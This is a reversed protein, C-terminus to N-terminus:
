ANTAVAASANSLPAISSSSPPAGAGTPPAVRLSVGAAALREIAVAGPDRDTVVCKVSSLGGIFVSSRVGFKGGDALLYSCDATQLLVRKISAHAMSAESFGRDLDIAKCSLFTKGIAFQRFADEAIPGQTCVSVHDLEGGACVVRVRPRDALLRAIDVGNTVVTLPEDPLLRALELTTSSADLSVVDGPEIFQLAHSAIRQKEEASTSQRVGIPLDTRDRRTAVAGGHTRNLLGESSLKDLDRRITEEAVGFREALPTVRVAGASEIEALIELQRKRPLRAGGNPGSPSRHVSTPM